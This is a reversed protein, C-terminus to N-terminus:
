DRLRELTNLYGYRSCVVFLRRYWVFQSRHVAMARWTAVPSLNVVTFASVASFPLDLLGLYKRVLSTSKLQFRNVHLPANRLATHIAIHNSHSSVGHKDFTVISTYNYKAVEELVLAQIRDTDWQTQMGDQLLPDDIVTLRTLGLHKSAKELETTRVKGLGDANGTSLCLLSVENTKVFSNIFPFFFMSEDDPHATVLLFKEQALQQKVSALNSFVVALLVFFVQFVLFVWKAMYLYSLLDAEDM